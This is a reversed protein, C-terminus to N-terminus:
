MFRDLSRLTRSFNCKYVNYPKVQKFPEDDALACGRSRFFEKIYGQLILRQRAEGCRKFYYPSTYIPKGVGGLIEGSAFFALLRFRICTSEEVMSYTFYCGRPRTSKLFRLARTVFEEM